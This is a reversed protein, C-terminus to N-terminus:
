KSEFRPRFPLFDFDHGNSGSFCAYKPMHKYHLHDNFSNGRRPTMKDGQVNLDSAKLNSYLETALFKILGQLTVTCDRLFVFLSCM